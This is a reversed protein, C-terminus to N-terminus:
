ECGMMLGVVTPRYIIYSVPYIINPKDMCEFRMKIVSILDRSALGLPKFSHSLM